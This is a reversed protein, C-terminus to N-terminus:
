HEESQKPEIGLEQLRLIDIRERRPENMRSLIELKLLEMDKYTNDALETRMDRRAQAQWGAETQLAYVIQKNTMAKIEDIRDQLKKNEEKAYVGPLDNTRLVRNDIKNKLIIKKMDNRYSFIHPVTQGQMLKTVVKHKKSCDSCLVGDEIEVTNKNITCQKGCNHCSYSVRKGIYRSM